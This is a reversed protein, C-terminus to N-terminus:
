INISEFDYIYIYIGTNILGLCFFIPMIFLDFKIQLDFINNGRKCLVLGAKM